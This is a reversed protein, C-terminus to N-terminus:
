HDRELTKTDPPSKTAVNQFARCNRVKGLTPYGNKVTGQMRNHRMLVLFAVEGFGTPSEEFRRTGMQIEQFEPWYGQGLPKKGLGDFANDQASNLMLM